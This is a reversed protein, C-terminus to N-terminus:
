ISPIRACPNCKRWTTYSAFPFSCVWGLQEKGSSCSLYPWQMDQLIFLWQMHDVYTRHKRITKQKKPWRLQQCTHSRFLFSSLQRLFLSYMHCSPSFTRVPGKAFVLILLSSSGLSSLGPGSLSSQKCSNSVVIELKNASLTSSIGYQCTYNHTTSTLQM